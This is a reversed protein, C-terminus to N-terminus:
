EPVPDRHPTIAKVIRRAGMSATHIPSVPIEGDKTSLAKLLQQELQKVLRTGAASLTLIKSKGDADTVELM